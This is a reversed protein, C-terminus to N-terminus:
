REGDRTKWEEPIQSVKERGTPVFIEKGLPRIRLKGQYFDIIRQNAMEIYEREKDCGIVKRNHKLGAILASGVGCYPDIVYDNEDTL